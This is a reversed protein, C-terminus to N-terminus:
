RQTLDHTGHYPFHGIKPNGSGTLPLDVERGVFLHTESLWWDEKVSFTVYLNTNNNSVTLTGVNIHQGAYLTTTFKKGCCIKEIQEKSLSTPNLKIQSDEDIIIKTDIASQDMFNDQYECSFIALFLFITTIILTIKRM